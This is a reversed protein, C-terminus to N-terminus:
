EKKLTFNINTDIDITMSISFRTKILQKQNLLVIKVKKLGDM